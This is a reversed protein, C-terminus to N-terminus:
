GSRGKCSAAAGCHGGKCLPRGQRRGADSDTRVRSAAAELICGIYICQQTALLLARMQGDRDRSGLRSRGEEARWRRLWAAAHSGAPRAHLPRPRPQAWPRAWSPPQGWARSSPACQPRAKCCRQLLRPALLWCKRGCREGLRVNSEGVATHLHLDQAGLGVPEVLGALDDRDVLHTAAGPAM